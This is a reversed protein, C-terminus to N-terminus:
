DKKPGSRKAAKREEIAKEIGELAEMTLRQRTSLLEETSERLDRGALILVWIVVIILGGLLLFHEQPRLGASRAILEHFLGVAVVGALLLAGKARRRFRRYAVLPNEGARTSEGVRLIERAILGVAGMVAGVALLVKLWLM